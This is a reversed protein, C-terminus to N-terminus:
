DTLVEPNVIHKQGHGALLRCLDEAITATHNSETDYTAGGIHPTLVVSPLIPSHIIPLSTNVKSTISAPPPWREQAFPPSWPMPTTSRPGRPTSTSWGTASRPSRAPMRDDGDDGRDGPCAGLDRREAGAVRRALLHRRPRLPRLRPGGPRPGALALAPGPWHAGLGSWGSPGAPSSGPGTASTPSKATALSRARASTETPRSSAEPPPSSCRGRTRGRRRRQPGPGAACARRGGHNGGVDVNNPDGPLQRVALDATRLPRRRLRRERRDRHDARRRRGARGAAAANYIRLTPQDLWSDLVLDALQHLLDLGSRQRRCHGAGETTRTSM